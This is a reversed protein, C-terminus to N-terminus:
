LLQEILPVASQLQQHVRGLQRFRELCFAHDEESLGGNSRDEELSSSFTKLRQDSARVRPRIFDRYVRALVERLDQIAEFHDRRTGPLWVQKIAGWATLQRTGVSASAKSIGLATTIDELSLPDRSLFLLAYIQGLSRPLGM